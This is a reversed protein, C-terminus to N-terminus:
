NTSIQKHAQNDSEVVEAKWIGDPRHEAFFNAAIRKLEQLRAIEEDINCIHIYDTMEEDNALDMGKPTNHYLYYDVCGDWKAVASRWGEPDVLELWHDKTKDKDIQWYTM